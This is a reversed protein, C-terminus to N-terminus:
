EEWGAYGPNTPALHGYDPTNHQGAVVPPLHGVGGERHFGAAVAKEYGPRHRRHTEVISTQLDGGIGEALIALSPWVLHLPGPTVYGGTSNIEVFCSGGAVNFIPHFNGAVPLIDVTCSGLERFIPGPTYTFGRASIPVTTSGLARTLGGPSFVGGTVEVPVTVSGFVVEQPPNSGEGEFGGVTLPVLTAGMEVTLTPGAIFGGPTIPVTCSGLARNIAGRTTVFGAPTVNLQTSGLQVQIPGVTLVGGAPAVALPTSGLAVDLPLANTLVGPVSLPVTASGMAVNQTVPDPADVVSAVQAITFVATSATGRRQITVTGSSTPDIPGGRVLTSWGTPFAGVSSLPSPDATTTDALVPNTCAWGLSEVISSSVNNDGFSVAQQAWRATPRALSFAPYSIQFQDAATGQSNTGHRAQSYKTSSTVVVGVPPINDVADWFDGVPTTNDGLKWNAGILVDATPRLAYVRVDNQFGNYPAAGTDDNLYLDDLYGMVQNTVWAGATGNYVGFRVSTPFLSSVVTAADFSVGNVRAEVLANTGDGKGSLELLTWVEPTAAPGNVRTGSLRAHVWRVAGAAFTLILSDASSLSFTMGLPSWATGGTTDAAIADYVAQPVYVYAGTLYKVGSTGPVVWRATPVSSAYIALMSRTGTRAVTTSATIQTSVSTFGEGVLYGLEGGGIFMRAM